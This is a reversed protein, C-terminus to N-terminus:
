TTCKWLGRQNFTYCLRPPPFLPSIPPVPNVATPSCYMNSMQ